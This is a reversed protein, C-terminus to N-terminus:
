EPRRDSHHTLAVMTKIAVLHDATVPEFGTLEKDTHVVGDRTVITLLRQAFQDKGLDSRIVAIGYGFAYEDSNLAAFLTKFQRNLVSVKRGKLPADKNQKCIILGQSYKAEYTRPPLGNLLRGSADILVLPGGLTKQALYQSDCLHKLTLYQPTLVYKHARDVLGFKAPGDKVKVSAVALGNIWAQSAITNEFEEGSKTSTMWKLSDISSPSEKLESRRSLTALQMANLILKGTDPDAVFVNKNSNSSFVTFLSGAPRFVLYGHSFYPRVPNDYNAMVVEGDLTIISYKTGARVEILADSPLASSFDETGKLAKAFYVKHLETKEPLNLILEKGNRNFIHVKASETARDSGAEIAEFLGGGLYAIRSYQCPVIVKGRLDVVGKLDYVKEEFWARAPLALISAVCAFAGLYLLVKVVGLKKSARTMMSSAYRALRSLM